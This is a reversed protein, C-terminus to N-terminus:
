RHWRQRVVSWEAESGDIGAPHFGPTRRTGTVRPAIPLGTEEDVVRYTRLWCDFRPRDTDWTPLGALRGDEEQDAADLLDDLGDLDLLGLVHRGVLTIGGPDERLAAHATRGFKGILRVWTGVPPPDPPNEALPILAAPTNEPAPDPMPVDSKPGRLTARFAFRGPEVQHESKDVPPSEPPTVSVPPAPRLREVESRWERLAEERSSGTALARGAFGDAVIWRATWSIRDAFLADRIAHVGVMFAGAVGGPLPVPLYALGPGHRRPDLGAVFECLLEVPQASGRALAPLVGALTEPDASRSTEIWRGDDGYTVAISHSGDQIRIEGPGLGRLRPARGPRPPPEAVEGSRSFAPTVFGIRGGLNLDLVPWPAFTTGGAAERVYVTRRRGDNATEVWAREGLRDVVQAFLMEAHRRTALADRVARVPETPGSPRPRGREKGNGM